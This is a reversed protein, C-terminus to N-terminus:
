GISGLLQSSYVPQSIGNEKSVVLHELPVLQQILSTNVTAQKRRTVLSFHHISANDHGTPRVPPTIVCEMLIVLTRPKMDNTIRKFWQTTTISQAPTIAPVIITLEEVLPPTATCTCLAYAEYLGAHLERWGRQVAEASSRVPVLTGRSCVAEETDERALIPAAEMLSLPPGDFNVYSVNPLAALIKEFTARPPSEGQLAARANVVLRDVYEYTGPCANLLQAVDDLSTITYSSPPAQESQQSM